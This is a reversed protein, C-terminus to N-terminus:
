ALPPAEGEDADPRATGPEEDEDEDEDEGSSISGVDEDSSGAEAAEEMDQAGQAAKSEQM